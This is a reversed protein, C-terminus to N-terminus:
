SGEQLFAILDRLQEPTRGAELGEPMLSQSSSAMRVIDKRPIVLSVGGAQFLTVAEPTEGGVLGQRSEGDRTEIEVAVFGPNIAMNPDLINSLLDEVSRHAVGNLDPGVRKGIGGAVHCRACSEEFFARGRLADGRTPLRAMWDAVISKRNSYEEDGMFASARRRIEPTGGRLLRRRQELDLNLEGIRVDEAELASLLAGHHVRRELLIELLQPRLSPSVSRWRSVLVPGLDSDKLSRLLTLARRQLEVPERSDLLRVLANTVTAPEGLGLLPLLAEREALPRDTDTVARIARTLASRQSENEPLGLVRTLRWLADMETADTSACLQDIGPRVSAPMTVKAGSRGVGEALGQWAAVRVRAPTLHLAEQICWAVDDAGAQSGARAGLLASLERICEEVGPGGGMAAGSRLFEKFVRVGQTPPVSAIVALRSWRHDRDEALIRALVEAAKDDDIRGLVQALIFRVRPSDDVVRFGRDPSWFRRLIRTRLPGSAALRDAVLLLAQERVGPSSDQLADWIEADRLGGLGDLTRLAHVRTEPLTARHSLRRLRPISDTARRELLLRQATTRHWVSARELWTLCEENGPARPAVRQAAFGVKPVVRYIRGRNEGARVDLDKRIKEPIYDPHEIVDRQMDLVYLAGDPGIEFAVPRFAPDTSALFERTQEDHARSAKFAPGDPHIVDRHVLNGVVDGVLVSGRLDEPFAASDVFGMGGAASFHGAQEPHNPRTMASSIPFIRSMEEHDSISATIPVPPFGPHRQIVELPLFRHQIHSINYPTFARGFADFVLGFGGGTNGTLIVKGTRPDFAFDHDQLPTVVDPMRPSRVSGSSGGNAVHFRNDLGYRLGSALSDSIGRKLGDLVVDRQDAVGDGDLDRLWLIDPPAVVLLGGQWPAVSTVYSLGEAFVTSRDARGDGDSDVLRRVASGTKGGPGAGYPYDRCEGVYAAGTEDWAIAVPDLVDPEAAWLHVELRPDVVIRRLSEEPSLAAELPLVSTLALLLALRM